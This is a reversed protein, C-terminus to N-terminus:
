IMVIHARLALLTHIFRVLTIKSSGNNSSAKRRLPSFVYEAVICRASLSNILRIVKSSPIFIREPLLAHSPSRSSIRRPRSNSNGSSKSADTIRSATFGVLGFFPFCRRPERQNTSKSRRIGSVPLETQSRLRSPFQSKDEPGELLEGPYERPASM